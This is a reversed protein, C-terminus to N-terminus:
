ESWMVHTLFNFGDTSEAGSNSFTLEHRDVSMTSSSEGDYAITDFPSGIYIITVGRSLLDGYDFNNGIGLLEKPFYGTPVLLMAGDPLSPLTELGIENTSIGKARLQATLGRFFEPYTYADARAYDLVFLQTSPKQAYLSASFNLRALNQSGYRVLFYGIRQQATESGVSLIRNNDASFGYAGSFASPPLVPPQQAPAGAVSLWVFAIALFFLALVVAAITIATSALNQKPPARAAEARGPTEEPKRKKLLSAISDMIGEAPTEPKKKVNFTRVAAYKRRVDFVYAKKTIKLKLLQRGKGEIGDEDGM